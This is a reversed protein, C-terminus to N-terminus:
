HKAVQAAAPAAHNEELSPNFIGFVLTRSPEVYPSTTCSFRITLRGPPVDVNRVFARGSGDIPLCTSFEASDIRLTAAGPLCTKAVFRLRMQKPHNSRNRIELIGEEGCWSWREPGAIEELYFGRGWRLLPRCYLRDRQTQWAADTYGQRLRQTFGTLPFFAFRGNRSVIPEAPLISRLKTELEKAADAYGERDVYIGGFDLFALARVLNETPFSALYAHLDDAFRGHMAGFSWRLKHSHLYARFHDYPQLRYVANAYSLFAVYPLQFVMTGEPVAAEIRAVFDADNQYAEKVEPFPALYTCSTQDALGLVLLAALVARAIVRGGRLAAFRRYLLDIGVCSAALALFGIFISIRNYSRVLGFGLLNFATGFGGATCVLVACVTLVGLLHCLRGRESRAGHGCIVCGMLFLFGLSGVIGLAMADGESVLHTGSYFRDRLSRFFPLRHQFPPLLLQTITLSLQEGDTWPRKAVHAPSLNPGERWWYLFSPSMNALFSGALIASLIATQWLTGASRSQAFGYLGAVLVFLLAFVAYYPFDCGIAACVLVSIIARLSTLEVRLRGTESQRVILFPEGNALWVVVMLLLPIMYYAALFLHSEGRWFHYPLFAFLVGGVIAVGRAIGLSRLAALAALSILPFSLLFYLNVLVAPNSTFLSLCKLALFHLNCNTPYDYMELREPAGLYRNTLWWGNDLLTKTWTLVPLSDQRYAFPVTLDARWLRLLLVVIALTLLLAVGFTLTELVFPTPLRKRVGTEDAQEPYSFSERSRKELHVTAL